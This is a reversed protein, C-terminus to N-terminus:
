GGNSFTAMPADSVTIATTANTFGGDKDTVRLMVVYTGAVDYVHSTTSDTGTTGDGFDWAYKFGASTDVPSPDTATASFTLAMGAAGTTPGSISATPAVNNVIVTASAQSTSGQADTVRLTATFTGNDAYTHSPTATGSGTTGDGYSWNYSYPALGGTASGSFSDSTGENATLSSGANAVLPAASVP